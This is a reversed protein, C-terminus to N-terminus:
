HGTSDPRGRLTTIRQRNSPPHRLALPQHVLAFHPVKDRNWASVTRLPLPFLLPQEQLSHALPQYRFFLPASDSVDPAANRQMESCPCCKMGRRVTHLATCRLAYRHLQDCHLDTLMTRDAQRLHSICSSVNVLVTAEQAFRAAATYLLSVALPLTDAGDSLRWTPGRHQLGRLIVRTRAAESGLGVGVLRTCCPYLRNTTAFNEVLQSAMMAHDDSCDDECFM